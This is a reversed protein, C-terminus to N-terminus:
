NKIIKEKVVFNKKESSSQRIILEGIFGLSFLQLGVVIMLVGLLLAPRSGILFGHFIKLWSEYVLIIFGALSLIIGFLGFFHMPRDTFRRLFILTIFDFISSVFRGFGYKSKGYRRPRHNIAVEGVSFGMGSVLSPIYRHMDGYLFLNKIAERKYFKFCCNMDHIDIGTMKRTISNAIKSAIRKGFSDARKQKWGCVLDFGSELKEIFKPIENPDDQLDGDLTVIYDGEAEDFGAQLAQSKGFNRAFSIIKVSALKKLENLTKDTSGDDIFIIEYDYRLKQFVETIERYLEAVSSEENYVPIVISIKEKLGSEM